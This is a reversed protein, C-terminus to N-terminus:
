ADDALMTACADDALMTAIKNLDALNEWSIWVMSGDNNNLTMGDADGDSVTLYRSVEITNAIM